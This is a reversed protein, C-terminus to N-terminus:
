RPRSALGRSGRGAPGRSCSPPWTPLRAWTEWGAFRSLMGPEPAALRRAAAWSRVVQPMTLGQRVSRLMSKQRLSLLMGPSVDLAAEADRADFAGPFLSCRLLTRQEAADLLEWSWTLLADLSAHRPSRARGPDCLEVPHEALEELLARPGRVPAWAAALELALPNGDLSDILHAVASQEEAQLPRGASLARREYLLMGDEVSLPQLEVVHEGALGLRERSTSVVQVGPIQLWLTLAQV